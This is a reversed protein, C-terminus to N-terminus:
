KLRFGEVPFKRELLVVLAAAILSFLLYLLGVLTLPELYRFNESGIIKAMQMMELLTIASLQPTEKFMAIVYNGTAPLVARLAQPLIIDRYTYFRSLNLAKAAEWQGHDVGDIGARFVEALYCGYHLGLALVGTALPSLNLGIEPTIYYIFFIQILLPTSRIFEILLGVSQKLLRRRSRRLLALLIGVGIALVSGLLTALLTIKAGQLLMPMVEVAFAWDWYLEDM